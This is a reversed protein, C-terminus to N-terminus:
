ITRAILTVRNDGDKTRTRCNMTWVLKNNNNVTIIM